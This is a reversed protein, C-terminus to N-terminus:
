AVYSQAGCLRRYTSSCMDGLEGLVVANRHDGCAGGV